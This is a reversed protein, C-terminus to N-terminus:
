TPEKVPLCEGTKIVVGGIPTRKIKYLQVGLDVKDRVTTRKETAMLVGDKIMGGYFFLNFPVAYDTDFDDGLHFTLEKPERCGLWADVYVPWCDNFGQWLDRYMAYHPFRPEFDRCPIHHEGGHYSQFPSKHFKVGDHDVRKCNRGNYKCDGCYLHPVTFVTYKTDGYEEMRKQALKRCRYISPCYYQFGNEEAYNEAENFSEFERSFLNKDKDSFWFKRMQM